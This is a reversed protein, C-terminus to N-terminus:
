GKFRPSILGFQAAQTPEPAESPEYAGAIVGGARRRARGPRRFGEASIKWVLRKSGEVDEQRTEVDTM